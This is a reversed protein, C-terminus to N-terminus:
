PTGAPVAAEHYARRKAEGDSPPAPSSAPVAHGVQSTLQQMRPVRPGADRRRLEAEAFPDDQARLAELERDECYRLLARYQCDCLDRRYAGSPTHDPGRLRPIVRPQFATRCQRCFDQGPIGRPDHHVAPAQMRERVDAVAAALKNPTPYHPEQDIVADVAREITVLDCGRLRRAFEQAQYRIDPDGMRKRYHRDLREVFPILDAATM